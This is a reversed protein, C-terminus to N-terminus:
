GKEGPDGQSSGPHEAAVHRGIGSLATVFGCHECVTSPGDPPVAKSADARTMGHRSVCHAITSGRATMERRCVPCEWPQGYPRPDRRAQVRRSPRDIDAGYEDLLARLKELGAVEQCGACLDISKPGDGLDVPGVTEAGETGCNDCDIVTRSAM